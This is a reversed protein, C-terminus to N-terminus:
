ALGINIHHLPADADLHMWRTMVFVYVNHCGHECHLQMMLLNM